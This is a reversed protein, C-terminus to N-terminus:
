PIMKRGEWSLVWGRPTPRRARVDVCGSHTGEAYIQYHSPSSKIVTQYYPNPVPRTRAWYQNPIPGPLIQYPKPLIQNFTQYLNAGM